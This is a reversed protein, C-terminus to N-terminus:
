SEKENTILEVNSDFFENFYFRNSSKRNVVTFEMRVCRGVQWGALHSAHICASRVHEIWPLTCPMNQADRITAKKTKVKLFGCLMIFILLLFLHLSGMLERVRAQMNACRALEFTVM